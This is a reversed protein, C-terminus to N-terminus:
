MNSSHSLTQLSKALEPSLTFTEYDGPFTQVAPRPRDTPLDLIRPINALRPKWYSLHNELVEGTLWQRQWVSFDSYQIELERLPSAKGTSFAAYLTTLEKSFVDKSWGDTIIHHMCLMLAHRAEHRRWLTVRFLPAQSLDFPTNIIESVLRETEKDAEEQSLSCLDIVPLKISIHEAIVQVPQGELTTFSTRLAEQRRIVENLAQELAPANFRGEFVLTFPFNYVATGPDLQELYWLREQAFSLPFRNKDKPQKPIFLSQENGSKKKLRELLQKHKEPSLDAIRKTLESM